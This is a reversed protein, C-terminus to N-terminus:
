FFGHRKKTADYGSVIVDILEHKKMKNNYRLKMSSCCKKIWKITPWFKEDRPLELSGLVIKPTSDDGYIYKEPKCRCILPRTVFVDGQLKMEEYMMYMEKCFPNKMQEETFTDQVYIRSNLAWMEEFPLYPTDDEVPMENEVDQEEEVQMENEVNQEEELDDEPVTIQIQATLCDCHSTHPRKRQKTASVVVLANQESIDPESPPLCLSDIQSGLSPPVESPLLPGLM